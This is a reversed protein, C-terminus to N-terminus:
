RIWSEIQGAHALQDRHFAARALQRGHVDTLLRYCIESRIVPWLVSADQRSQTLVVLRHLADLLAASAVAHHARTDSPGRGLLRPPMELAITRLPDLELELLVEIAPEDGAAASAHTAAPMAIANL